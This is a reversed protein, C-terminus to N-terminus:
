SFRGEEAGLDFLVRADLDAADSELRRAARSGDRRAQRALEAIADRAAITEEARRPGEGELAGALHAPVAVAAKRLASAAAEDRPRITQALAYAERTLNMARNWLPHEKYAPRDGGARTAM